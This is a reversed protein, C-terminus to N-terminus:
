SYFEGGKDLIIGVTRRHKKQTLLFKQQALSIENM